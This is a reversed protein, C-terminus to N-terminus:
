CYKSLSLDVGQSRDSKYCSCVQNGSLRSKIKHPKHAKLYLLNLITTIVIRSILSVNRIKQRYHNHYHASANVKEQGLALFNMIHM